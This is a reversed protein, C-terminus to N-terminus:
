LRAGTNTKEVMVLMAYVAEMHPASVGLRRAVELPRRLIVDHEMPRRALFDMLMSPEVAVDRTDTENIFADPGDMGMRTPLPAGTAAEGIRYVEEMINRILDKCLPDDLMVRTNNGGSVVSVTNFSANWVLKLWRLPQIEDVVVCMVGQDNWVQSLQGLGGAVAESNGHTSHLGMMLASVKGHQIAGPTPQSVDIYAIVSVIHTQPYRAAFPEEIGIGNQILLIVTSPGVAPAIISSNDSLNPLAKTCFIIYDFTTGDAVAAEVSAVVRSPRYTSEGYADSKIRFGDREVASFNSRCVCTVHIGGE